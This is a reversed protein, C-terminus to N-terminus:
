KASPFSWMRSCRPRSTGSGVEGDPALFMEPARANIEALFRWTFYEKSRRYRETPALSRASPLDGFRMVREQVHAVACVFPFWAAHNSKVVGDDVRNLMVSLQVARDEDDVHNVRRVWVKLPPHAVRRRRVLQIRNAAASLM